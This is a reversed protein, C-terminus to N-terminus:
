ITKNLIVELIATEEIKAIEWDALTGIMKEEIRERAYKMNDAQILISIGTKKEKGVEDISLLNIRAKFWKENEPFFFLEDIKVRKVSKVEYGMTPSLTEIAKSEAEGFTEAEFIYIETATETKGRESIRDYSIKTEFLNM